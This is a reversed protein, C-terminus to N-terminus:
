KRAANRKAAPAQSPEPPSTAELVERIKEVLEEVRFPKAVHPLHNRQLFDRTHGALVDGTVFLFRNRLPNKARDLAQYFHKGDIEPMKIDCIALAYHQQTARDLAQRPDLLVDVHLGEDELV